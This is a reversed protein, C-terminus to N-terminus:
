LCWQPTLTSFVRQYFLGQEHPVLSIDMLCIRTYETLQLQLSPTPFLLVIMGLTLFAVGSRGQIGSEM